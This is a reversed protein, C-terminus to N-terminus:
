RLTPSFVKLSLTVASSSVVTFIYVIVMILALGSTLTLAPTASTMSPLSARNATLRSFATNSVRSTTTDIVSDSVSTGSESSPPLVTVIGGPAVDVISVTVVSVSSLVQSSWEVTVAM